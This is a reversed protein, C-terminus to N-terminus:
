GEGLPFDPTTPLFEITSGRATLQGLVEIVDPQARFWDLAFGVGSFSYVPVRPISNWYLFSFAVRVLFANPDNCWNRYESRDQPGLSHVGLKRVPGSQVFFKYRVDDCHFEELRNLTLTDTPDPPAESCVLILVRIENAHRECFQRVCHWDISTASFTDLQPMLWYRSVPDVCGLGYYSINSLSFHRISPFVLETNADSFQLSYICVSLALLNGWPNQLSSIVKEEFYVGKTGTDKFEAIQLKPFAGAAELPSLLESPAQLIRVNPLNRCIALINGLDEPYLEQTRGFRYEAEITLRQTHRMLRVCNQTLTIAGTSNTSRGRVRIHQYLTDIGMAHWQRSVLATTRRVKLADGLEKKTINASCTDLSVPMPNYARAETSFEDKNPIASAYRFIARWLEVPLTPTTFQTENTGITSSGTSEAMTTPVLLSAQVQVYGPGCGVNEPNQKELSM